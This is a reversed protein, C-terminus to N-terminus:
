QIPEIHFRKDALSHKNLSARVSYFSKILFFFQTVEDYNMPAVGILFPQM